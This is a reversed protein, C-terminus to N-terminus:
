PLLRREVVCVAPRLPCRGGTPCQPVMPGRRIDDGVRPEELIPSGKARTLGHQNLVELSDRRHLRCM